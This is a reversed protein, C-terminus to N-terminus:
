EGAAACSNATRPNNGQGTNRSPQVARWTAMTTQSAPRSQHHTSGSGGTSNSHMTPLTWRNYAAAMRSPKRYGQIHARISSVFTVGPTPSSHNATRRSHRASPMASPAVATMTAM